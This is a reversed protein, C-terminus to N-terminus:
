FESNMCEQIEELQEEHRDTVHQISDNLASQLREIYLAYDKFPNAQPHFTVTIAIHDVYDDDPAPPWGLFTINRKGKQFDILDQTSNFSKEVIRLRATEATEVDDEHISIQRNEKIANDLVRKLNRAKNGIVKGLLHHPLEALFTHPRLSKKSHFDSVGKDLRNKAFKRMSDSESTIEAIVSEGDENLRIRLTPKPEEIKQDSRQFTDYMNWSESIVKKLGSAGKGIIGGIDSPTTDNLTYTSSM